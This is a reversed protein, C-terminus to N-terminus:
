GFILRCVVVAAIFGGLDALLGTPLAHRSRYVGAAGFYVTLVYLTTETSGIMTSAIRGILSDAGQREMIDAGIALSASGSLPRMVALPLLEVPLQLRDLLPGLGRALLAMAGSEQFLTIAVLMAVLYPILRVSITFGEAAGEIFREFIDVRRRLSGVVAVVILIPILWVAATGAFRLPNM